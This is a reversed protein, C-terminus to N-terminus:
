ACDQCIIEDGNIEAIRARHQVMFCVTCTFEDSQKPIVSGSLEEGSLDAMPVDFPEVIEGDDTDEVANDTKEAAKLGELSDTEIEEDARRRPADYDTAM